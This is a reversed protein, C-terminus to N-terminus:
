EEVSIQAPAFAEIDLDPSQVDLCLWDSEKKVMEEESAAM